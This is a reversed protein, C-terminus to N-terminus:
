KIVRRKVTGNPTNINLIYVGAPLKSFDINSQINHTREIVLKGNINTVTILGSPGEITLVDNVPNPYIQYNTQTTESIGVPAEWNINDIAVYAPTNMGFDGIDSSEYWMSVNTAGGIFVQTLDVTQWTDVIYDETNDTFRYDALYFEISDKNGTENECIIWVRFFDEGNTGDVEGLANTPEGFKKAYADGNLMSLGAYTTNSIDFSLIRVDENESYIKPQSYAIAYGTSNNAGGGPFASYQNMYGPTTNDTINSIAFGDFSGWQEYYTNNLLIPNFDFYTNGDTGDNDYTEPDTLYGDFSIQAETNAGIFLATILIYVKKM